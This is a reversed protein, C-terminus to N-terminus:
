ASEFLAIAGPLEDQIGLVLIAGPRLKGRQGAISVLFPATVRGVTSHTVQLRVSASGFLRGGGELFARDGVVFDAEAPNHTLAFGPVGVLQQGMEEEFEPQALVKLVTGELSASPFRSRGPQYLFPRVGERVFAQVEPSGGSSEALDTLGPQFSAAPDGLRRLFAGLRATWEAADVSVDSQEEVGAASLILQREQHSYYSEETISRVLQQATLGPAPTGAFHAILAQDDRIEKYKLVSFWLAADSIDTPAQNSAEVRKGLYYLLFLGYAEQDKGQALLETLVESLAGLEGELEVVADAIQFKRYANGESSLQDRVPGPKLIALGIRESPNAPETEGAVKPRLISWAAAQAHHKEESWGIKRGRFERVFSRNEENLPLIGALHRVIPLHTAQSLLNAYQEEVMGAVHDLDIFAVNGVTLGSTGRVNSVIAGSPLILPEQIKHAQAMWIVDPVGLYPQGQWPELTWRDLMVAGRQNVIMLSSQGLRPLFREEVERVANFYGEQAVLDPFSPVFTPDIQGLLEKVPRLDAQNTRAGAILAAIFGQHIEIVRNRLAPSNYNALLVPPRQLRAARQQLTEEAGAASPPIQTSLPTYVAGGRLTTIAREIRRVLESNDPFAAPFNAKVRYYAEYGSDSGSPRAEASQFSRSVRLVDEATFGAVAENLLPFVEMPDEGAQILPSGVVNMLMDTLRLRREEAAPLPTGQRRAEHIRALPTSSREPHEPEPVILLVQIRGAAREFKTEIGRHTLGRIILHTAKPSQKIRENIKPGEEELDRKADAGFRLQDARQLVTELLDTQGTFFADSAERGVLGRGRNWQWWTAGEPDEYFGKVRYGNKRLWLIQEVVERWFPDKSPTFSAPMRGKEFGQSYEAQGRVRAPRYSSDYWRAYAQSDDPTQAFAQSRVQELDMPPIGELHVIIEPAEERSGPSPLPPLLPLVADFTNKAHAQKSHPGLLVFVKGDPVDQKVPETKKEPPKVRIQAQRIDAGLLGPIGAGRALGKLKWDAENAKAVSEPDALLKALLAPDNAELHEILKKWKGSRVAERGRDLKLLEAIAKQVKDQGAEEAGAAAIPNTPTIAPALTTRALRLLNGAPDSSLLVKELEEAGAQAKQETRLAYAPNPLVLGLALWLTLFRTLTLSLIQKM